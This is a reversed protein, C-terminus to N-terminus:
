VRKRRAAFCSGPKQSMKTPVTAGQAIKFEHSPLKTQYEFFYCDRFGHKHSELHTNEFLWFWAFTPWLINYHLVTGSSKNCKYLSTRARIGGVCACHANNQQRCMRAYAVLVREYKSFPSVLCPCAAHGSFRHGERGDWFIDPSCMCSFLTIEGVWAWCCSWLLWIGSLVHKKFNNDLNFSRM